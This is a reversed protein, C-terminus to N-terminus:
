SMAGEEFSEWAKGLGGALGEGHDVTRTMEQERRSSELRPLRQEAGEVATM